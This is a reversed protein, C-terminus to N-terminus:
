KIEPKVQCMCNESGCKCCAGDKKCCRSRCCCSICDYLLAVFFGFVFGKVLAWLARISGEEVTPVPLHAALMWASPGYYNVWLVWVFFGVGCVIGIALGLSVPCLKKGCSGMMFGGKAEM